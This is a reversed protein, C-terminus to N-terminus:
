VKEKMRAVEARLRALEGPHPDCSEAREMLDAVADERTRGFGTGYREERGDVWAEWDFRDTPIPKRWYDTRIDGM